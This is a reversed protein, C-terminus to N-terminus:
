VDGQTQEPDQDEVPTLQKSEPDQQGTRPKRGALLVHARSQAPCGGPPGRDELSLSPPVSTTIFCFTGM